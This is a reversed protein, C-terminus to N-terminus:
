TELAGLSAIHAATEPSLPFGTELSTQVAIGAAEAEEFFIGKLQPGKPDYAVVSWSNVQGRLQEVPIPHLRVLPTNPTIMIEEDINKAKWLHPHAPNFIDTPFFNIERWTELYISVV